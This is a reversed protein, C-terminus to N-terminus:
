NTKHNNYKKRLSFLKHNRKKEKNRILYKTILGIFIMFTLYGPVKTQFFFLDFFIKIDVLPFFEIVFLSIIVVIFYIYKFHM